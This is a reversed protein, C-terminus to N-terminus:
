CQFSPILFATLDCTTGHDDRVLVVTLMPVSLRPVYSEHLDLSLLLWKLHDCVYSRDGIKHLNQTPIQPVAVNIM